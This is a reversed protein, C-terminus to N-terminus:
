PLLHMYVLARVEFEEGQLENVLKDLGGALVGETGLMRGEERGTARRLIEPMNAPLEHNMAHCPEDRGDLRVYNGDLAHQAYFAKRVALRAPECM